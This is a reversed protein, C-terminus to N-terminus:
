VLVVTSAMELTDLTVLVHAPQQPRLSTPARPKPTAHKHQVHMPTQYVSEVEMTPLALSVPVATSAMARM